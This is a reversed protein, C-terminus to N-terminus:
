KGADMAAELRIDNALRERELQSIYRQLHSLSALHIDSFRCGIRRGGHNGTAHQHVVVLDTQIAGIEPLQLLCKELRTGPEPKAGPGEIALAVGSLSIDIVRLRSPMENLLVDCVPPNLAPVPYRISNRRQLRLITSPLRARFAPQAYGRVAVVNEAEFRFWVADVQASAVLGASGDLREADALGAADFVLEEFSPNVAILRTTLSVGLQTISTTVPLPWKALGSLVSLVDRRTRLEYREEGTEPNAHPM